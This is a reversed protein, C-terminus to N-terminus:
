GALRGARYAKLYGMCYPDAGLLAQAATLVAMLAEDLPDIILADLGSGVALAAFVRNLLRRHPLGYSVNSLGCILHVDPLAERIGAVAKLFEQGFSHNTSVPQVLPDVYLNEPRLGNQVLRNVLRDAVGIRQAATEPMGEDDMCLAVLKLDTGRVVPLLAEFRAQELSISNVMAPGSHVALAQEVARPDPSDICCPAGVAEQVTQVLWCLHEVEEGVFVGANVDVYAAGAEVQGRALESIAEADRTRIAEAVPKRSANILEGVILM